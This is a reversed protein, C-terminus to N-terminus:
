ASKGKCDGVCDAEASSTQLSCFQLAEGAQWVTVRVGSGGELRKVVAIGMSPIWDKEAESM